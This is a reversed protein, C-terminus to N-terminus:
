TPYLDYCRAVRPRCSGDSGFWVSGDVEDSEETVDVYEDCWAVTSASPSAPISSMPAREVDAFFRYTGFPWYRPMDYSLTAGTGPGPIGNVQWQQAPGPPDIPQIGVYAAVCDSRLSCQSEIDVGATLRWTRVYPSPSATPGPSPSTEQAPSRTATPPATKSSPAVAPVAATPASSPAITVLDTPAPTARSSSCAIALGSLAVLAIRRM